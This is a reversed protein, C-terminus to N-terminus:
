AAASRAGPDLPQSAAWCARAGQDQRHRLSHAAHSSKASVHYAPFKNSIFLKSLHLAHVQIWLSPHQEARGPVKTKDIGYPRAGRSIVKNSKSDYVLAKTGQTGVDVGVFLSM